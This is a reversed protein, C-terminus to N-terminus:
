GQITAVDIKLVHRVTAVANLWTTLYPINVTHYDTSNGSSTSIAVYDLPYDQQPRNIYLRFSKHSHNDCNKSQTAFYEHKYLQVQM